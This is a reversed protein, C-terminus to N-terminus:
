CSDLARPPCVAPVNSVEKDLKVKGGCVKELDVEEHVQGRNKGRGGSAYRGDKSRALTILKAATFTSKPGCLAAVLKLLQWSEFTVDREEASGAPRQCNDCHGCAKM